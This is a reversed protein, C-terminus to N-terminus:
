CTNLLSLWTTSLLHQAAKASPKAEAKALPRKWGGGSQSQSGLQDNVSLWGKRGRRSTNSRLADRCPGGCHLGM